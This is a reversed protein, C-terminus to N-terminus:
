PRTKTPPPAPRQASPAPAQPAEEGPLAAIILVFDLRSFKVTPEAEIEQDRGLERKIVKTVRAVPINKPFWKGKGSTVLLDDHEVEDNSDVMEVRCAYRSPDGTGRVYGRAGTRSDIVDIGFAADVALQVDVSDGAVHVVTGVVGGGGASEDLGPAIVPMHARIERSGRDVVVRTVRFFETFDKGVVQASILDGPTTEKLQLLRRLAQNEQQHHELLRVQERLRTNDYALRSNDSKVDALYVYDDWLNSLGRAISSAGFEIPASVRLIARDMANLNEPKKMNARLFFFPVALLVVVIAIDRYRKVLPSV